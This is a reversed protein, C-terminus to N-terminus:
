TSQKESILYIFLVDFEEYRKHKVFQSLTHKIKDSDATSTVQFAIRNKKDILDVAAFNKEQSFNANILDLNFIENLLPILINEAHINIDYLNAANLFKVENTFRSLLEIIKNISNQRNM